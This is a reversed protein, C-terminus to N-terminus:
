VEEGGVPVERRCLPMKVPLGVGDDAHVTNVLEDANHLKVCVLASVGAVAPYAKDTELRLVAAVAVANLREAVGDRLELPEAKTRHPKMHRAFVGGGNSKVFAVAKFLQLLLKGCFIGFKYYCLNM